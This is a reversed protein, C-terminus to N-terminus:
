STMPTAVALRIARGDVPGLGVPGFTYDETLRDQLRVLNPTPATMLSIPARRPQLHPRQLNHTEDPGTGRSATGRAEEPTPPAANSPSPGQRPRANPLHLRSHHQLNPSEPRSSAVTPSTRLGQSAPPLHKPLIPTRCPWLHRPEPAAVALQHLSPPLAVSPPVAPVSGVLEVARFM